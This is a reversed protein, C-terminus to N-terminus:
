GCITYIFLVVKSILRSCGSNKVLEELNVIHNDIKDLLTIKMFSDDVLEEM